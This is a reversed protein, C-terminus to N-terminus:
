ARADLADLEALLEAVQAATLVALVDSGLRVFWRQALARVADSVSAEGRPVLPSRPRGLDDMSIQGALVGVAKRLHGAVVVADGQFHAVASATTLIDTLRLPESETAM